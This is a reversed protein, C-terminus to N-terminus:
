YTFVFYTDNEYILVGSLFTVFTLFTLFTVCYQTEISLESMNKGM